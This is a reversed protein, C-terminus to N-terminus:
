QLAIDLHTHLSSNKNSTNFGKRKLFDPFPSPCHILMQMDLASLGAERLRILGGGTAEVNEFLVLFADKIKMKLIPFQNTSLLEQYSSVRFFKDDCPFSLDLEAWQFRPSVNNFIGFASDLM